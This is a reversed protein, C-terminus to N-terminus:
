ITDLFPLWFCDHGTVGVREDFGVMTSSYFMIMYVCDCLQIESIHGLGLMCTLGVRVSYLDFHSCIPGKSARYGMTHKSVFHSCQFFTMQM